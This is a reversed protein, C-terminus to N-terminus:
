QIILLNIAGTCFLTARVAIPHWKLKITLWGTSYAGLEADAAGRTCVLVGATAPLQTMSYIIGPVDGHSPTLSLLQCM